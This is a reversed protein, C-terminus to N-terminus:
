ALSTFVGLSLCSLSQPAHRLIHRHSRRKWTLQHFDDIYSPEGHLLITIRQGRIILTEGSGFIISFEVAGDYSGSAPILKEHVTDGIRLLGDSVM